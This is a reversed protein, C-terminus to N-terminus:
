LDLEGYWWEFMWCNLCDVSKTRSNWDSIKPMENKIDGLLNNKM